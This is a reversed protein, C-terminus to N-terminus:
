RRHVSSTDKKTTTDPKPRSSTDKKPTTDNLIVNYKKPGGYNTNATTAMTVSFLGLAVGAALIFRKM